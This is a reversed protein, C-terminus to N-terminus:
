PCFFAFSSSYPRSCTNQLISCEMHLGYHVGRTLDPTNRHWILHLSVTWYTQFIWSDTVFCIQPCIRSSLWLVEEPLGWTSTECVGLVLCETLLLGRILFERYCISANRILQSVMMNCSLLSFNFDYLKDYLKITPKARNEIFSLGLILCFM